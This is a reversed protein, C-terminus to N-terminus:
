RVPKYTSFLIITSIEKSGWDINIEQILNEVLELYRLSTRYLSETFHSLAQPGGAALLLRFVQM